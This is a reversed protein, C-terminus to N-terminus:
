SRPNVSIGSEPVRASLKDAQELVEEKSEELYRSVFALVDMRLDEMDPNRLNDTCGGTFPKGDATVFMNWPWGGQGSIVQSASMYYHDVHLEERDVKVYSNKKM